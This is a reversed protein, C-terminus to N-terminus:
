YRVKQSMLHMVAGYRDETRYEKVDLKDAALAEEQHQGALHGLLQRNSSGVPSRCSFSCWPCLFVVGPASAAGKDPDMGCEHNSCCDDSDSDDESDEESDAEEDKTDVYMSYMEDKVHEAQTERELNEMSYTDMKYTSQSGIDAGGKAVTRGPYHPYHSLTSSSRVSLVTCLVTRYPARYPTRYPVSLTSCPEFDYTLAMGVALIPRLAQM